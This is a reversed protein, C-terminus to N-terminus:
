GGPDSRNMRYYFIWSSTLVGLLKAGSTGFEPEDAGGYTAQVVFELGLTEDALLAIHAERRLELLQRRLEIEDFSAAVATAQVTLKSDVYHTTEQDAPEDPGFDVSIAPLEDSEPDLSLRRHAYVHIGKPEVRARIIEAAAAIIQEARHTTM